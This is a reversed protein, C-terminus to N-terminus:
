LLNVSYQLEGVEGNELNIPRLPRSRDASTVLLSRTLRILVVSSLPSLCCCCTPEVVFAFCLLLFSLSLSFLVEINRSFYKIHPLMERHRRSFSDIKM